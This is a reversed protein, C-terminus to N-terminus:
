TASQSYRTKLQQLYAQVGDPFTGLPIKKLDDIL